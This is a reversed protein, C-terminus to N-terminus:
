SKDSVEPIPHESFKPKEDAFCNLLLLIVVIVYYAMYSAFPYVPSPGGQFCFITDIFYCSNLLGFSIFIILYILWIVM